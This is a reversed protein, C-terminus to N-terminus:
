YFFELGVVNTARKENGKKKRGGKMGEMKVEIIAFDDVGVVVESEVM